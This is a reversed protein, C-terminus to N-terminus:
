GTIRIAVLARAQGAQGTAAIEIVYDGRALTALPLDVVMESARPGGANVPLVTMPDGNRNLLRATVGGDGYMEFRILLRDTRDFQRTVTPIASADSSLERFERPTRAAFVAPTSLAV